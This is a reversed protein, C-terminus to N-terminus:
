NSYQAIFPKLFYRIAQKIDEGHQQQKTDDDMYEFSRVSEAMFGILGIIMAELVEPTAKETINLQDFFHMVIPKFYDHMTERRQEHPLAVLSEIVILRRYSQDKFLDVIVDLSVLLDEEPNSIGCHVRKEMQENLVTQLQHIKDEIVAKFLEEKNKFHHYLAGRAMEADHVIDNTSTAMYGQAIFRDHAKEIFKQRTSDFMEKNSGQPKSM